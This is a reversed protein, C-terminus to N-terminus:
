LPLLLFGLCTLFFLFAELTPFVLLLQIFIQVLEEILIIRLFFAGFAPVFSLITVHSFHACKFYKLTISYARILIGYLRRSGLANSKNVVCM